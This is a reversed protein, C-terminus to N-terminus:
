ARWPYAMGAHPQPGCTTCRAVRYVPHATTEFVKPEYVLVNSAVLWDNAFLWRTAYRLAFGIVTADLSVDRSQPTVARSVAEYDAAFATNSAWRRTACEFCATVGPVVVPGIRQFRGDFPPVPLWRKGTSAAQTNLDSLFSLTGFALLLDADAPDVRELSPLDLLLRELLPVATDGVVAIRAVATPALPEGIAARDGGNRRAEDLPTRLGDAAHDAPSVIDREVLLDLLRHVSAAHDPFERAIDQPTFVGGLLRALVTAIRESGVRIALLERGGLLYLSDEVEGATFRPSVAYGTSAQM